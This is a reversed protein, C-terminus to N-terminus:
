RDCALPDPDPIALAAVLDEGGAESPNVPELVASTSSLVLVPAPAAAFNGPAIGRGPGFRSRAVDGHAAQGAGSKQGSDLGPVAILDDYIHLLLPRPDPPPLRGTCRSTNYAYADSCSPM